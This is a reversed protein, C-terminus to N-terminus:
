ALSDKSLNVNQYSSLQSIPPITSVSQYSSIGVSVSQGVSSDWRSDWAKMTKVIRTLDQSLKGLKEDPFIKWNQDPIDENATISSSSSSSTDRNAENSTQLYFLFGKM